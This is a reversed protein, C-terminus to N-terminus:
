RRRLGHDLSRTSDFRPLAPHHGGRGTASLGPERLPPDLLQQLGAAARHLLRSVQTQSCNLERAIETETMARGLRLTFAQRELDPLRTMAASVSLATEVVDYNDDETGISDALADTEDSDSAFAPTDLSISYHATATAIAALVDEATVELREALEGIRAGRGSHATIERAM